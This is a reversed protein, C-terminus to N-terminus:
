DQWSGTRNDGDGLLSGTYHGCLVMREAKEPDSCGRQTYVNHVRGMSVITDMFWNEINTLAQPVEFFYPIYIFVSILVILVVFFEKKRLISM